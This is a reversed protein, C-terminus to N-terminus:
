NLANANRVWCPRDDRKDSAFYQDMLTLHEKHLDRWEVKKQYLAYGEPENKQLLRIQKEVDLMKNVLKKLYKESDVNYSECAEEDSDKM